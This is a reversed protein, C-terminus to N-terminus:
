LGMMESILLSFSILVWCPGRRPFVELWDLQIFLALLIVAHSGLGPSAPARVVQPQPLTVAESIGLSGQLIVSLPLFLCLPWVTCFTVPPLAPPLDRHHTRLPHLLTILHTAKFAM